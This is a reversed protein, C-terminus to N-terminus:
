QTVEIISHIDLKPVEVTLIGQAFRHELAKVEPQLRVAAPM